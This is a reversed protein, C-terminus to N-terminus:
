ISVAMPVPEPTEVEEISTSIGSRKERLPPLLKVDLSADSALVEIWSSTLGDKSKQTSSLPEKREM